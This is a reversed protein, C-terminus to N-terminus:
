DLTVRDFTTTTFRVDLAVTDGVEPVDVGDPLFIMSAQMHPPEVFWRQKGAVTFPSLARGAADLGGKAMSVARQKTSSAPTPAELGVGHATGGSVVVVTGRRGIVRQRYGVRDGRGVRHTELVTARPRLASREGLWLSTGIRPRWSVDPHDARLTGLERDTLHSVWWRQAPATGLFREVEALHSSGRGGAPMPLHLAHGEVKLNAAARSAERLDLPGMGFRRMSTLGELIVRTGPRSSALAEVDSRRSVTHVVREDHVADTEDARWPQLVVVDGAFTERVHAVEAYTGVAVTDAGLEAATRGLMGLGFGYGNGKAVPVIGPHDGVVSTLHDHWRTRDVHLTLSM